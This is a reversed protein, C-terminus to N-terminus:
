FIISGGKFWSPSRPLETLVGLPTGGVVFETCELVALFGSIANNNHTNRGGSVSHESV